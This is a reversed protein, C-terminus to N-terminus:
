PCAPSSIWARLKARRHSSSGSGIEVLAATIRRLISTAERQRSPSARDRSTALRTPLPTRGLGACARSRRSCARPAACASLGIVETPRGGSCLTPMASCAFPAHLASAKIAPIDSGVIIAPGPPLTRFLRQMRAGLDGQGQPQREIARPWFAADMDSHPRGCAPNALPSRACAADAYSRPLLSLIQDSPHRRRWSGASPADPM